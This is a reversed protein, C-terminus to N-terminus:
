STMIFYASSDDPKVYTLFVTYSCQENPIGSIGIIKKEQSLNYLFPREMSNNM